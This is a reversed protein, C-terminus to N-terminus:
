GLPRLLFAFDMQENLNIPNRTQQPQSSQLANQSCGETSPSSLPTLHNVNTGLNLSLIASNLSAHANETHNITHQPSNSPDNANNSHLPTVPEHLTQHNVKSTQNPSPVENNELNPPQDHSHMHPNHYINGFQIQTTWRRRKNHYARLNNAFLPELVDFGFQVHHIRQIRRRQRYIWREIEDMDQTCQGRSHSILGCRTCLKHVREYRCQVWVRSGDDLRLMFGTFVPMWPDM